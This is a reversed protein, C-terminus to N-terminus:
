TDPLGGTLGPGSANALHSSGGLSRKRKGKSEARKFSRGHGQKVCVGKESQMRRRFGRNGDMGWGRRGFWYEERSVGSDKWTRFVVM